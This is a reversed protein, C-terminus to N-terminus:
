SIEAIWTNGFGSFYTFIFFQIIIFKTIQFCPLHRGCSFTKNCFIMRFPQFFTKSVPLCIGLHSFVYFIFYLVELFSMRRGLHLLREKFPSIGKHHVSCKICLRVNCNGSILRDIYPVTEVRPFFMKIFPFHLSYCVGRMFIIKHGFSPFPEFLM